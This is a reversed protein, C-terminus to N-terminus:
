TESFFRLFATFSAMRAAPIRFGALQWVKLCLKARMQKFVAVVDTRNLLEETVFVDSGRHNVGMHQVTGADV